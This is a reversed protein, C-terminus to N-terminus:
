SESVSAGVVLHPCELLCPLAMESGAKQKAIITKPNSAPSQDIM